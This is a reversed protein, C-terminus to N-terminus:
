RPQLAADGHVNDPAAYLRNAPYPLMRLQLRDLITPLVRRISIHGLETTSDMVALQRKVAEKIDYDDGQNALYTAFGLLVSDRAARYTAQAHQLSDVQTRSLLLSDAEELIGRYPDSLIRDYTQKIAAAALRPGEFGHRGPRLWRKVFSEYPDPALNVSIDLTVRFPARMTTGSPRTDGFRSNVTYIFRNAAPDFGRVSYLVPDPTAFTGWGRLHDAGHIFQDLGGLPNSFYLAVSGWRSFPLKGMYMIQANLMATWPGDCSNRVAVRGLQQLLCRRTASQAGNLLARMGNALAIDSTTTPDFVFARDKALGDGNVDGSVIPTFPLGSQLRGFMTFTLHHAYMGGQMIFQHRADFDGRAWERALPSGFTAADFGTARARTSALTYSASTFWAGIDGLDPSLTLTAYRSVSRNTSVYDFVHGFSSIRRADSLAVIGSAPIISGPAAFVPWGEDSTTFLPINSFNLDIRGPQDVNLSYVGDLVYTM